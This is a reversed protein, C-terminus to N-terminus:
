CGLVQDITHQIQERVPSVRIGHQSAALTLAHLKPQRRCQQNISGIQVTAPEDSRVSSTGNRACGSDILCPQIRGEVLGARLCYLLHQGSIESGCFDGADNFHRPFVARWELRDLRLKAQVFRGHNGEHTVFHFAARELHPALAHRRSGGLMRRKTVWINRPMPRRMCPLSSPVRTGRQRPSKM